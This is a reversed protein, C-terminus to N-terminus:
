LKNRIMARDKIFYRVAGIIGADNGLKAGEIKLNKEFNNMVGTLVQERVKRIFLKEQVSVGGGILIKEPNFIHVLSILGTSIDTIWAEVITTVEKNGEGVLKFIERGNIVGDPFLKKLKEHERVSQVLSTMSAYQEYCGRNGCTCRKGKRDISFHGLEGAFGRSGLLVEGKTIIGGGLGTGITIIIANQCCTAGGVWQEGLAVCNADNVVTVPLSSQEEFVKKIQSGKWNRINGGVGAVVGNKSDIQGTASIGIGGLQKYSYKQKQLFEKCTLLVTDLIPTEYSDFAVPYESKLLLEGKESVIGFKVATGGIDVGLYEMM